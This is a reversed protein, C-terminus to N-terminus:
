SSVVQPCTVMPTYFLLSSIMFHTSLKTCNATRLGVIIVICNNDGSPLIPPFAQDSLIVVLPKGAALSDRYSHSSGCALCRLDATVSLSVNQMTDTRQINKAVFCRHDGEVLFGLDRRSSGGSGRSYGSIAGLQPAEAASERARTARITFFQPPFEIKKEKENSMVPGPLSHFDNPYHASPGPPPLNYSVTKNGTASGEGYNDINSMKRFNVSGPTQQEHLHRNKGSQSPYDKMQSKEKDDTLVGTDMGPEEDECDLLEDRWRREPDDGRERSTSVGERPTGLEPETPEPADAMGGAGTEM